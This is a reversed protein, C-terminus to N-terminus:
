ITFEFYFGNVDVAEAMIGLGQNEPNLENAFYKPINASILIQVEMWEDVPIDDSIILISNNFKVNGDEYAGFSDEPGGAKVIFKDYM